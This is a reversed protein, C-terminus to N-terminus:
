PPFRFLVGIASIWDMSNPSASLINAVVGKQISAKVTLRPNPSWQGETALYAEDGEFVVYGAYLTWAPSFKKLYEIAYEHFDITSESGTDYEIGVRLTMTGWRYGHIAGFGANYVWDPSDILPKGDDHPFVAEGYSYLEPRHGREECWRWVLRARVEGLGSQSTKDPMGTLDEDAKELSAQIARAEFEIALKENFGYAAFLREEGATYRGEFGEDNTVPFGFSAPDYQFDRNTSYQYSPELLWEGALVYTGFRSTPLGAGRDKLRDEPTAAVAATALLMMAISLGLGRERSSCKVMPPEM